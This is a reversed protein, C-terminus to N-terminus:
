AQWGGRRQQECMSNRVCPVSVQPRLPSASHESLSVTISQKFQIILVFDTPSTQALEAARRSRFGCGCCLQEQRDTRRPLRPSSRRHAVVQKIDQQGAWLRGQGPGRAAPQWLTVWVLVLVAAGQVHGQTRGRARQCTLCTVTTKVPLVRKTWKLGESAATPTHAHLAQRPLSLPPLSGTLVLVRGRLGQRRSENRGRIIWTTLSNHPRPWEGGVARWGGGM